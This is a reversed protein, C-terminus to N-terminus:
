QQGREFLRHSTFPLFLIKVELINQTRSFVIDELIDIQKSPSKGKLKTIFKKGTSGSISCM